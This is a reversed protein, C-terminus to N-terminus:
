EKNLMKIFIDSSLKVQGMEKLAKKGKKQKQWLKMKRTRDGGYLYGTVDKRLAPLTERAIVKNRWIAQIAVSFQEKPLLEKLKKVIRKGEKYADEKRVLWSLGFQKKGALHIEMKSIDAERWDILKYTYSAFGQSQSKLEDYFNRVIESLPMEGELYIINEKDVENKYIFRYDKLFNYVSGLYKSPFSININVWPEFVKSVDQQDPFREAEEIEVKKGNKLEVKYLVSPWTIVTQVNFHRKLRESIIDLHLLGLAGILFGRGLVPSQQLKYSFASDNLALKELSIKLLDFEKPEKPFISAFVLAQPKKYGLFPQIKKEKYYKFSAITEGIQLIGPKKIGTAIWGIEGSSLKETAKFEPSFFGIQKAEFNYKESVLVLKEKTKIEGEFVRVYAIIGLHPNFTSDFVMAKFPEKNKIKPQPIEKIIRELLERVGIGTKASILSIENESIQCIESIEKKLSSLDPINLDIKNIAPIIKLNALKAMNLNAITQAQVGKFGDVLLITGEVAKLARSVEYFFDTHGPTDILNIEFGQWNLRVPQMKITIGRERELDLMDLYQSVMKEKPIVNTIELFRDALTSKGHDIHAIISFNRIKM